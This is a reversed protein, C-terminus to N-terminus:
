KRLVLLLLVAAGLGLGIKGNTTTYWAPAVASPTYSGSSPLPGGASSAPALRVAAVSIAAALPEASKLLIEDNRSYGAGAVLAIALPVTVYRLEPAFTYAIDNIAVGLAMRTNFGLKGDIGQPDYKAKGTADALAKLATQLAKVGTAGYPRCNKVNVKGDTELCEISSFNGSQRIWRTVAGLGALSPHGMLEVGHVSTPMANGYFIM